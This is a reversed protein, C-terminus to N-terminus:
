LEVTTHVALLAARVKKERAPTAPPRRGVSLAARWAGPPTIGLNMQMAISASLWRRRSM